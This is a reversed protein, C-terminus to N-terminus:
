SWIVVEPELLFGFQQNVKDRAIEILETVDSLVASRDPNVIWNAHMSSFQAGGKKIGKLGALELLKGATKDESPNKFVSGFSPLTLPQHKKRVSLFEGRRSSTEEVSSPILKIMGGIVLVGDPLGSNRYSFNLSERNISKLEGSPTIVDIELLIDKMEGGHAGANMRVAGGFTAPIGGAFELGALGAHSLERSLSMLPMAGGVRIIQHGSHNNIKEFNRFGKGLKIVWETIGVESILLNSGAGLIKYNEGNNYLYNIVLRVQEVTNVEIFRSFQGGLAMTTMDKGFVSDRPKINTAKFFELFDVKEENKM